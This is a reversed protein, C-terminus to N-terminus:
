LAHMAQAHWLVHFKWFNDDHFAVLESEIIELAIFDCVFSYVTRPLGVSFTTLYFKANLGAALRRHRKCAMSRTNLLTLLNLGVKAWVCACTLLTRM